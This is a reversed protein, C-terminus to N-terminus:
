IEDSTVVEAIIFTVDRRNLATIFIDMADSSGILPVHQTQPFGVLANSPPM